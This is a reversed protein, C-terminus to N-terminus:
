LYLISYLKNNIYFCCGSDLGSYPQIGASKIEFKSLTSACHYTHKTTSKLAYKTMMADFFKYFYDTMCFLDTVKNETIM